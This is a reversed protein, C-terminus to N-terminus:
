RDLFGLEVEVLANRGIMQEAADVHERRGREDIQALRQRVV